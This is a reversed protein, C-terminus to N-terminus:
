FRYGVKLATNFPNNPNLDKVTPFQDVEKGDKVIKSTDSRYESLTFDLAAFWNRSIDLNFGARWGLKWGKGPIPTPNSAGIGWHSSFLPGTRFSWAKDFVKGNAWVMDLGLRWTQMSYREPEGTAPTTADIKYYGVYPRLELGLGGADPFAVGGEFDTGMTKGTLSKLQGHQTFLLGASGYFGSDEAALPLALAALTAAIMHKMNM